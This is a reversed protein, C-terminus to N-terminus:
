EECEGLLSQRGEPIRLRNKLEGCIRDFVATNRTIAELDITEVFRVRVTIVGNVEEVKEVVQYDM